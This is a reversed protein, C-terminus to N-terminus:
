RRIHRLFITRAMGRTRLDELEAFFRELFEDQNEVSSQKSFALTYPKSFYSQPLVFLEDRIGMRRTAAEGLTRDTLVLDVRGRLLNQFNESENASRVVTLEADWFEQEYSVGEIIGVTLNRNKVRQLNTINAFEERQEARSYFVYESIWMFNEGQDFNKPYRLFAEREPVHSVSLIIDVEGNRARELARDGSQRIIFEAQVGMREFILAALDVNIGTAQGESNLYEFPPLSESIVTIRPNQAFVPVSLMLAWLLCVLLKM